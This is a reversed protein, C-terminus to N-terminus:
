TIDVVQRWFTTGKETLLNRAILSGVNNILVVLGGCAEVTKDVLENAYAEKTLDASIAVAKLGKSTAYPALQVKCAYLQSFAGVGTVIIINKKPVFILQRQGM